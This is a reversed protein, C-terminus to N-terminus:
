PQNKFIHEWASVSFFRDKIDDALPEKLGFYERPNVDQDAFGFLYM